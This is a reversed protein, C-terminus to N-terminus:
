GSIALYFALYISFLLLIMLVSIGLTVRPLERGTGPNEQGHTTQLSHNEIGETLRLFRNAMLKLERKQVALTETPHTSFAVLFGVVSMVCRDISKTVTMLPQRCFWVVRNGAARYFWDFDVTITPEGHLRSRLVWFGIFTFFLLQCMDVVHAATYPEFRVPHPLQDYLLKPHVGLTICFLAALGMAVLMNRPPEAAPCAPEKEAFWTGWPLKLGTHLFTGISAGELMLWIVPLHSAASAEVVMSKSVFGNFLPFGSISYAGVMYLHFTLPMWKYLGGLDTLRSKGTTSLVAGAGMFLLAKYLIHCFAHAVAGNIAMAGTETGPVGMGVGCVMYGVQSIIHYALLRRIDNELVAFVVGYVAMIAGLWILLETGPFGRILAYVASKTTFATLFVAGTVTAEPYADSLWAHLPPVAANILFAILILVSAIQGKPGGVSFPFAEFATSGTEHVYLLIGALLCLGGFFHVLLYRLGAAYARKTKRYWILFVSSWAMAEWFFFLSLLDGAFVVGLASGVYIMAAVHQGRERVHLAYIEMLLSAIVFIYGFVLSLRDIRGLVLVQDLFRLTWTEGQSLFVDQGMLVMNGLALFPILLLWSKRMREPIVSLLIAGAFYIFGPHIWNM